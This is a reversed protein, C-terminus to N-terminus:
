VRPRDCSLDGPALLHTCIALSIVGVIGASLIMMSDCVSTCRLFGFATLTIAAGAIGIAAVSTMYAFFMALKCVVGRWFAFSTINLM